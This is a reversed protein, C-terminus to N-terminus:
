KFKVIFMESEGTSLPLLYLRKLNVFSSFVRKVGPFELVLRWLSLICPKKIIKGTYTTYVVSM